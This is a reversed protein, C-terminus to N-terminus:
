LRLLRRSTFLLRLRARAHQFTYTPAAIKRPAARASTAFAYALAEASSQPLAGVVCTSVGLCLEFRIRSATRRHSPELLARVLLGHLARAQEDRRAAKAGTESMTKDFDDITDCIRAQVAITRGFSITLLPM